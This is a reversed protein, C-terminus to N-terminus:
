CGAQSFRSNMDRQQQNLGDMRVASGGARQDASIQELRTTLYRCESKKHSAERAAIDQAVPMYTPSKEPETGRAPAQSKAAITPDLMRAAEMLVSAQDARDKERACNAEVAARVDPASARNRYVEFIINREEASRAEGLAREETAGGERAWVLKQAAAGRRTCAADVTATATSAQSVGTRGIVKGQQTGECPHDQYVTGCRYMAQAHAQTFFAGWLIILALTGALTGSSLVYGTGRQVEHISPM